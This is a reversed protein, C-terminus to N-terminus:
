RQRCLNPIISNEEQFRTTKYIKLEPNNFKKQLAPAAVHFQWLGMQEEKRESLFDISM